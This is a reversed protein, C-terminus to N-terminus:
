PLVPDTERSGRAVVNNSDVCNEAHTSKDSTVPNLACHQKKQVDSKALLEYTLGLCLEGSVRAEETLCKGAGASLAVSPVANEDFFDGM